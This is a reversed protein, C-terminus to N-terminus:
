RITKENSVAKLLKNNIALTSMLMEIADKRERSPGRQEYNIILSELEEIRNKFFKELNMLYEGKNKSRSDM